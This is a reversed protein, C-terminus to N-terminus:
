GRRSLSELGERDDPAVTRAAHLSFGDSRACLPKPKPEVAFTEFFTQAPLPPRLAEGMAQGLLAQDRDLSPDFLQLNYDIM